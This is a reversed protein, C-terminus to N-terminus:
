KQPVESVIIKCGKRVEKIESFDSPPPLVVIEGLESQEPFFMLVSLCYKSM